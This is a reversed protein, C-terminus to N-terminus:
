SLAGTLSVALAIQSNSDRVILSMQLGSINPCDQFSQVAMFHSQILSHLEFKRSISREYFCNTFIQLLNSLM